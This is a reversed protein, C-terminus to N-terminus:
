WSWAGEVVRPAGSSMWKGGYPQVTAEVQELYSLAESNPVDGPIRWTNTIYTSMLPRRLHALCKSSTCLRVGEPAPHLNSSPSTRFQSARLVPALLRALSM